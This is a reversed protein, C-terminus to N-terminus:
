SAKPDAADALHQGDLVPDFSVLELSMASNETSLRCSNRTDPDSIQLSADSGIVFVEIGTSM